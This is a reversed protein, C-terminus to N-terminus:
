REGGRTGPSVPHGRRRALRLTVGFRAGLEQRAEAAGPRDGHELAIGFKLLLEALTLPRTAPDM